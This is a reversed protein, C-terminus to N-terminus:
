NGLGDLVEGFRDLGAKLYDPPLASSFRLHGPSAFVEGPPILVSQERRLRDSLDASSLAGRTRIFCMASAAPPVVSLHNDHRAVFDAVVAFGDRILGRTRAIIKPRVEPSLAWEALRQGLMTGSVAVYEHRRWLEDILAVPGVVWGTRLGPLGYAKSLSGVAIVKETSGWFTPTETAGDAREAGAYVEDALLWAGASEAVAVLAARDDDSLIAGTPNNPNVVAVMKVPATVARALSDRDVAWGRAEDLDIARVEAGNNLALGWIQLYTPRVSAIVDGAGILTQALIYNAEAAGVTVLVNEPGAGPYRAAILERLRRTGNVEPYNLAVRELEARSDPGAWDLLTALGLPDVGSEAFHFDVGQEHRSLLEELAFPRFSTTM